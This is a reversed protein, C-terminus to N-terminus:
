VQLIRALIISIMKSASDSTCKQKYEYVYHIQSIFRKSRLDLGISL